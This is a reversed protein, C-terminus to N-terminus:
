IIVEVASIHPNTNMTQRAALIGLWFELAHFLTRLHLWPTNVTAQKNCM